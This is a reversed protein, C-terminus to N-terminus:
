PHFIDHNLERIARNLVVKIEEKTFLKGDISIPRVSAGLCWADRAADEYNNYIIRSVLVHNHTLVYHVTTDKPKDVLIKRIRALEEATFPRDGKIKTDAQKNWAIVVANYTAWGVIAKYCDPCAAQWGVESELLEPVGGCNCQKIM